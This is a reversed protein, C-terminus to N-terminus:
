PQDDGRNGRRADIAAQANEILQDETLLELEKLISDVEIATATRELQDAAELLRPVDALRWAAPKVTIEHIITQTLKGNVTEVENTTTKSLKKETIPHKLMLDAREHLKDVYGWSRDQYARRRQEFERERTARQYSDFALARAHWDFQVVANKWAPSVYRPPTFPVRPSKEAFESAFFTFSALLSRNVGSTLWHHFWSYHKASEGDIQLWPKSDQVEDIATSVDLASIGSSDFDEKTPELNNQKKTAM